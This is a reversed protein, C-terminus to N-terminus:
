LRIGFFFVQRLGIGASPRRDTEVDKVLRAPPRKQSKRRRRAVNTKKKRKSDIRRTPQISQARQISNTTPDKPSYVANTFVKVVTQLIPQLPGTPRNARQKLLFDGTRRVRPPLTTNLTSRPKCVVGPRTHGHRPPPRSHNTGKLTPHEGGHVTEWSPLGHKPTHQKKHADGVLIKKNKRTAM